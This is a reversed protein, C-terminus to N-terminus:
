FTEIWVEVHSTVFQVMLSIASLATEIWVEVHSTVLLFRAFLAFSVTEIWVEVHSTVRFNRLASFYFDVNWDVGGRPLHGPAILPNTEMITEIWVEM